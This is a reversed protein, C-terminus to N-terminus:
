GASITIDGISVRVTLTGNPATGLDGSARAAVINRTVPVSWGSINISGVEASAVLHTATNPALTLRARGADVRVEVSAGAALAGGLALRGASLTFRSGDVLTIGSAEANGASVMATVPGSTDKLELNGADLRVGIRGRLGSVEMNGANLQADLQTAAPVTLALDVRHTLSGIVPQSVKVEVRVADGEQTCNVTIADLDAQTADTTVGHVRRTAVLAMQGEGGAVVRVTGVPNRVTLSPALGVEFAKSISDTVEPGRGFKGLINGLGKILESM